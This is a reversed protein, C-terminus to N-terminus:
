QIIPEVTNTVSTESKVEGDDTTLSELHEKEKSIKTKLLTVPTEISSDATNSEQIASFTSPTEEIKLNSMTNTDIEKPAIKDTQDETSKDSNQSNKVEENQVYIEAGATVDSSVNDTEKDITAAIAKVIDPNSTALEAANKNLDDLHNDLTMVAIDSKEKTLSGAKALTHIELIRKQVREEQWVLKQEPSSILVGAVEENVHVKIGYLFDGPLANAASYSVGTGGIVVLLVAAFVSFMPKMFLSPFEYPSEIKTNNIINILNMRMLDKENQTLKINQANKFQSNFENM